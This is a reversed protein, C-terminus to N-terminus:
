QSVGKCIKDTDMLDCGWTSPDLLVNRSKNNSDVEPLLQPKPLPPALQWTRLTENWEQSLVDFIVKRKEVTDYPPLFNPEFLHTPTNRDTFLWLGSQYQPDSGLEGGIVVKKPYRVREVNKTVPPVLPQPGARRWAAVVADCKTFYADHLQPTRFEAKRVITSHFPGPCFRSPYAFLRFLQNHIFRLQWNVPLAPLDSTPSDHPDAHYAPALDFRIELEPPVDGNAVVATPVVTIEPILIKGARLAEVVDTVAVGGWDPRFTGLRMIEVHASDPAALKYSKPPGPEGGGVLWGDDNTSFIYEYDRDLVANWDYSTQHTQSASHGHESKRALSLGLFALGDVKSKSPDLVPPMSRQQAFTCQLYKYETRERTSRSPEKPM